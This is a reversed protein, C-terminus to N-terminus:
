EERRSLPQCWPHVRDEVRIKTMPIFPDLM